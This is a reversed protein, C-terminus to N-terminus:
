RAAAISQPQLNIVRNGKLLELAELKESFGPVSFPLRVSCSRKPPILLMARDEGVLRCGNKYAGLTRLTKAGANDQLLINFTYGNKTRLAAIDRLRLRQSQKTLNTADIFIEKRDRWSVKYKAEIGAYSDKGLHNAITRKERSLRNAIYDLKRKLTTTYKEKLYKGDIVSLFMKQSIDTAESSSFHTVFKIDSLDDALCVTSEIKPFRLRNGDSHMTVGHQVAINQQRSIISNIKELENHIINKIDPLRSSLLLYNYFGNETLFKNHWNLKSEEPLNSGYSKHYRSKLVVPEGHSRYCLKKISFEALFVEKSSSSMEVYSIGRRIKHLQDTISFHLVIDKVSKANHLGRAQLNQALQEDSEKSACGSM